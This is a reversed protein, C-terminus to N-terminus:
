SRLEALTLYMGSAVGGRSGATSAYQVNTGAELVDRTVLDLGDTMAESFNETLERTVNDLGQLQLLESLLIAQGYQSVTGLVETWTADIFAPTTGETLASPASANAASGANGAPFIVELRRFSISKGMNPAIEAQLGFRNYVTEARFRSLLRKSFTALQGEKTAGGVGWTQTVPM